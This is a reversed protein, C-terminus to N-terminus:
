CISCFGILGCFAISRTEGEDLTLNNQFFGVLFEVSMGAFYRTLVHVGGFFPCGDIMSQLIQCSRLVFKQAAAPSPGGGYDVCGGVLLMNPSGRMKQTRRFM